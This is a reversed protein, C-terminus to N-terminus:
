CAAGEESAARTARREALPSGVWAASRDLRTSSGAPLSLAVVDGGIRILGALGSPTVGEGVPGAGVAVDLGRPFGASLGVEAASGTWEGPVGGASGGPLALFSSPEEHARTMLLFRPCM